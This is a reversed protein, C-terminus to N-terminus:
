LLSVAGGQQELLSVKTEVFVPCFIRQPQVVFVLVDLGDFRFKDSIQQILASLQLRQGIELPFSDFIFGQFQMKQLFQVAIKQFGM